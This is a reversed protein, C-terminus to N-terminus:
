EGASLDSRVTVESVGLRASLDAVSVYGAQQLTQAIIEQREPRFLRRSM